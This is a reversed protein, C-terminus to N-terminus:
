SNPKAELHTSTSLWGLKGASSSNNGIGQPSHANAGKVSASSHAVPCSPTDQNCALLQLRPPLSECGDMGGVAAQCGPVEDSAVPATQCTLFFEAAQPPSPHLCHSSGEWTARPLTGITDRHWAQGEGPGHLSLAVHVCCRGVEKEM